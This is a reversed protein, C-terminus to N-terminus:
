ELRGQLAELAAVQGKILKIRETFYVQPAVTRNKVFALPSAIQMDLQWRNEADMSRAIDECCACFDCVSRLNDQAQPLGWYTLDFLSVGLGLYFSAFESDSLRETAKLLSALLREAMDLYAIPGIHESQIGESGSANWPQELKWHDEPDIAVLAEHYAALAQTVADRHM